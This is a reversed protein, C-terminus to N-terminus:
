PTNKSFFALRRQRLEEMSPEKQESPRSTGPSAGPSVTPSDQELSLNIAAQLNEEETPSSPPTQWSKAGRSMSTGTGAGAGAVSESECATLSLRLARELDSDQSESSSSEQLSMAIAAQLDDVEVRPGSAGAGSAVAGTPGVGAKALSASLAAKLEQDERGEELVESLLKPKTTQTAPHKLLTEDAASPPLDGSVVFISYGEHQLQTLFLSLYTNSILEPSSLLSNLNFWQNGLKRVTLWHDKFNCIYARQEIPNKRADTALPSTSAFPVLNLNWVRLASTLVQVSFMGSDDMNVSPQEMFRRFEETDVGQEAMHQQEAQDMQQAIDALDVATFYQGQLLNNLCHQGCLLGDQKEHYVLEM